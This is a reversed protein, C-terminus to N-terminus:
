ILTNEKLLHLMYSVFGCTSLLWDFYANCLSQSGWSSTGMHLTYLPPSSKEMVSTYHSITEFITDWINIKFHDASLPGIVFMVCM